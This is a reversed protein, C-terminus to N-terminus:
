TKDHERILGRHTETYARSQERACRAEGNGISSRTLAELRLCLRGLRLGERFQSRDKGSTELGVSFGQLGGELDSEWFSKQGESSM